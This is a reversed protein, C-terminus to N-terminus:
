TAHWPVVTPVENRLNVWSLRPVGGALQPFYEDVLGQAAAETVTCGAPLDVSKALVLEGADVLQAVWAAISDTTVQWTHPLPPAAQREGWRVFCSACILAPVGDRHAAEVQARNRAPRLRPWLETALSENLALSELALWHAREEGLHFLRDWHRVLDATQGGGVVLVLPQGPWQREIWALAGPLGEWDLLSGGLKCVTPRTAPATM